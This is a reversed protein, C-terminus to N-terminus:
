KSEARAYIEKPAERYYRILGPCLWGEQDLQECYYWNGTSDARRWTLRHTYGPFPQASFLLRFGQAADPIEKVMDDIMAPIGSVFPERHLGVAADDFVWTGQYQYPAIVMLANGPRYM